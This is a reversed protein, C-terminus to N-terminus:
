GKNIELSLQPTVEKPLCRVASPQSPKGPSPSRTLYGQTYEWRTQMERGHKRVVQIYTHLLLKFAIGTLSGWPRQM